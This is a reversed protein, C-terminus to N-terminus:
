FAESILIFTSKNAFKSYRTHRTDLLESSSFKNPINSSRVKKNPMLNLMLKALFKVESVCTSVYSM